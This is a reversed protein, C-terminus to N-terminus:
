LLSKIGEVCLKEPLGFSKYDVASFNLEVARLAIHEPQKPHFTARSGYLKDGLIPFGHRFLEFRLQHSRGTRPQLKWHHVPQSFQNHKVAGQWTADTVAKKGEPHIYARKKGRLISCSWEFHRPAQWQVVDHGSLISERLFTQTPLEQILEPRHECWAEYFKHVTRKEFWGNAARQAEPTKAFLLLGSVEFDLRHIPYLKTKPFLDNISRRDSKKGDVIRDPVSLIGAPKDFCIFDNNEFVPTM